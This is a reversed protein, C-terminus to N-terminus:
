IIGGQLISERCTISLPTNYAGTRANASMDQAYGVPTIGPNNDDFSWYLQLNAPRIMLPMRKKNSTTLNILDQTRLQVNWVAFGEIKGDWYNASYKGVKLYPTADPYNIVAKGSLSAAYIAGNVYFEIFMFGESTYCTAALQYLLGATLTPGSVVLWGAAPLQYRVYAQIVGANTMYFLYGSNNGHYNVGRAANVTDTTIASYWSMPTSYNLDTSGRNVYSDHSGDLELSM